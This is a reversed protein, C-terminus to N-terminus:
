SSASTSAVARPRVRDGHRRAGPLQVTSVHMGSSIVATWHGGNTRVHM